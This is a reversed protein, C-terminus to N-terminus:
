IKYVGSALSLVNWSWKMWKSRNNQLTVDKYGQLRFHLNNIIQMENELVMGINRM